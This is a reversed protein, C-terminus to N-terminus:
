KNTYSNSIDMNQYLYTNDLKNEITNSNSYEEKLVPLDKGNAIYHSPNKKYDELVKIITQGKKQFERAEDTLSSKTSFLGEYLYKILGM